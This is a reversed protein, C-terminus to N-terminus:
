FYNSFFLEVQIIYVTHVLTHLISYTSTHAARTFALSAHAILVTICQIYVTGRDISSSSYVAFKKSRGKEFKSKNCTLFYLKPRVLFMSIFKLWFTLNQDFYLKLVSFTSSNEVVKFYNIQKLYIHNYWSFQSMENAPNEYSIPRSPKVCYGIWCVLM